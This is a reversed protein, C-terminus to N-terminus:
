RASRYPEGLKLLSTAVRYFSPLKWFYFCCKHIYVHEWLRKVHWHTEKCTLLLGLYASFDNKPWEHARHYKNLDAVARQRNVTLDILPQDYVNLRLEPSLKMLPFADFPAPELDPTVLDALYLSADSLQSSDHLPSSVYSEQGVSDDTDSHYSADSM